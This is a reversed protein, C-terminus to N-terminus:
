EKIKLLILIFFLDTFNTTKKCFKTKHTVIFGRALKTCNFPKYEIKVQM